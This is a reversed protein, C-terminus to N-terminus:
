PCNAILFQAESVLQSATAPAIAKGSQAQVENIFAQYILAATACQGRGRAAKAENLKALLSNAVGANTIAGSSLASKVDAIISDPTIAVGEFALSGVYTNAPLTGTSKTLAGTQLDVTQIFQDFGFAGLEDDTMYIKHTSSDITIGSGLGLNTTVVSQAGTTPDVKVISGPCCFTKGYVTGSSSDYVLAFIGTAMPPSQTVGGGLIDFTAITNVPPFQSFDEIPMYIAHKAPAITMKLPQLGPIDAVHTQAGTAPDIRVLQFPYNNTQGFLAQSLPDYVMDTIGSAMDASVTSTAAHTDVTVIQYTATLGQPQQSYVTRVTFLRHGQSDSVLENFSAGPFTDAPPLTAFTSSAGTSPDIVLVSSPGLGFLTGTGAAHAAIPQGLFPLVAVALVMFRTALKKLM